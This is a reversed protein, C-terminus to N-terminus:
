SCDAYTGPAQLIFWGTKPAGSAPFSTTDTNAKVAIFNMGELLLFVNETSTTLYDGTVTPTTFDGPALNEVTIDEDFTQPTGCITAKIKAAFTSDTATVDATARAIIIVIEGGGGEGRPPRYKGKVFHSGAGGGAVIRAANNWRDASDRSVYGPM